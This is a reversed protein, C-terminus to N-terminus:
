KCNEAVKMLKKSSATWMNLIYVEVQTKQAGHTIDAFIGKMGDGLPSYVLRIGNNINKQKLRIMEGWHTNLCQAYDDVSKETLFQKTPGKNVQKEVTLCGSVMLTM